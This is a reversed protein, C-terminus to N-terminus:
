SKNTQQQPAHQAAAFAYVQFKTAWMFERFPDSKMVVVELEDCRILSDNTM